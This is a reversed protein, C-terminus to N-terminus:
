SQTLHAQMGRLPEVVEFVSVPQETFDLNDFYPSDLLSKPYSGTYMKAVIIAAHRSDVPSGTSIRALLDRSAIVYVETPSGQEVVPPEFYLNGTPDSFEIYNSM